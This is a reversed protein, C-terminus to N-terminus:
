LGTEKRGRACAPYSPKLAARDVDGARPAGRGGIYGHDDACVGRDTAVIQLPYGRAPASSPTTITFAGGSGTSTSPAFTVTSGEPLGTISMALPATFGEVRNINVISSIPQGARGTLTSAASLHFPTVVELLM